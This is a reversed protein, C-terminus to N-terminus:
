ETKAELQALVNRAARSLATNEPQEAAAQLLERKRPREPESVLAESVLNVIAPKEDTLLPVLLPWIEDGRFVALTRAADRRLFFDESVLLPKLAALLEPTIPQGLNCDDSLWSLAVRVRAPDNNSVQEVIYDFAARDQFDRMLTWCAHFKLPENKGEMLRHLRERLAPRQQKDACDLSWSLVAEVVEPRECELGALLLSPFFDIQKAAGLSHILFLTVEVDDHLLLPQLDQFWRDQKLSALHRLCTRVGQRTEQDLLGVQLATAIRRVMVQLRAEDDIQRFYIHCAARFNENRQLQAGAARRLPVKKWIEMISIARLRVEPDESRSAEVVHAKALEGYAALQEVADERQRFNESGLNAVLDALAQQLPTTSITGKSQPILRDFIRELGATGLAHLKEPNFQEGATEMQALEAAIEPEEGWAPHSLMFLLCFIALSSRVM